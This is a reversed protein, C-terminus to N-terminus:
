GPTPGAPRARRPRSAPSRSPRETQTSCHEGPVALDDRHGHRREHLRRDRRTSPAGTSASSPRAAGQAPRRGRRVPDQDLAYPNTIELEPQTTMLYLAADAIYIPTTTPRSRARTRRSAADFVVDWSDPAPTVVDPQVDPRERRPRPARRLPRRQRHQPAQEQPGRLRGRLEPHAGFDVPAVDGGAILRLTADGSASVGDYQGTKMLQVCTRRLGPWSRPRQGQLRDDTEFPTVWDYGQVQEGGARGVVYGPWAVLNLAGEGAGVSRPAAPASPRRAPPRAPRSRAAASPASSAARPRRAARRRASCAGVAIAATAALALCRRTRM